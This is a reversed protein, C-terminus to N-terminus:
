NTKAYAHILKMAEALDNMKCAELLQNSMKIMAIKKTVKEDPATTGRQTQIQSNGKSSSKSYIGSLSNTSPDLNIQNNM